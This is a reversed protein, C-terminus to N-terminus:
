SGTMVVQMVSRYEGRDDLEKMDLLMEKPGTKRFTQILLTEQWTMFLMESDIFKCIATQFHGSSEFWWYRYLRLKEDWGFIGHAQGAAGQIDCHYDFTVYKDELTRQMIGRGTGACAEHRVSQPIQYDLAWEGLMFEFPEMM